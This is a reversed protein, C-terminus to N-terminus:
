FRRVCFITHFLVIACSVKERLETCEVRLETCEVDAVLAAREAAEVRVLCSKYDAVAVAAAVAAAVPSISV